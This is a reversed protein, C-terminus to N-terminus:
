VRKTAQISLAGDSNIMNALKEALLEEILTEQEACLEASRQM